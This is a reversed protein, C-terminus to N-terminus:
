DSCKGECKRGVRAGSGGLLVELAEWAVRVSRGIRVARLRGAWILRRVTKASVNLRAATEVVTLLTLPSLAEGFESSSNAAVAAAANAEQGIPRASIRPPVPSNQHRAFAAGICDPLPGTETSRKPRSPSSKPSSKGVRM